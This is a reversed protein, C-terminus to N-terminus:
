GATLGFANNRGGTLGFVHTNVSLVTGDHFTAGAPVLTDGSLGVALRTSTANQVSVTSPIEIGSVDVNVGDIVSVKIGDASMGVSVPTQSGGSRGYLLVPLGGSVTIGDGGLPGPGVDLSSGMGTVGGVATVQGAVSSIPLPSEHFVKIGDGSMGVAAATGGAGSLGYLFVPLGGTKGGPQNFISPSGGTGFGTVGGFAVVSDLNGGALSFGAGPSVTVTGLIGALTGGAVTVGGNGHNVTVTPTVTGITVNPLSTVKTSIPNAGSTVELAHGPVNTVGMVGAVLLAQETGAMTIGIGVATNGSAGYLLVPTAMTNGTVDGNALLRNINGTVGGAGTTYGMAKPVDVNVDSISASLSGKLVTVLAGGSVAIGVATGGCSGYM